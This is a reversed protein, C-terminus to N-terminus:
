EETDVCAFDAMAAEATNMEPRKDTVPVLAPKGTPKILYDAVWTQMDAKGIVKELKTIPLLAKPEVIKAEDWHANEVLVKLVTEENTYKRNSRGEVVKYGPWKKGNKVAEELAHTEVAGIWNKFMAARELVEVVDEDGMLDPKKFEHRALEMNYDALAKCVAKAKCFQCHKGPLYEGEGKHALAAKTKLEGEAWQLLDYVEIDASSYNDIRPQYITMRVTRIDYLFGFKEVAGLAYLMMQKNEEASVNVGKGYKLDVIEMVGDAIIVVDSTGFGEPIWGTLDLKQELFILADRTHSQAESYREIVFLAYDECYGDMEPLYLKDAKVKAVENKYQKTRVAPLVDAPLGLRESIMLEGYFHALTGEAAATSGKDPYKAELRASPTCNLWRSASSPSLLAHAM